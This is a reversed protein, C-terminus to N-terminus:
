PTAAFPAIRLTLVHFADAIPHSAYTYRLDFRGGLAHWRPQDLISGLARLVGGTSLEIGSTECAGAQDGDCQFEMEGQHRGLRLTLTELMTFEVGRRGTHGFEIVGPGSGPEPQDFENAKGSGTLAALPDVFPAAYNGNIQRRLLGRDAQAVGTLEVIRLPGGGFNLDYGVQVSWGLRVRRSLPGEISLGADTTNRGGLGSLAYGLAIDLALGAEADHTRLGALQAIPARVLIGLDFATAAATANRFEELGDSETSGGEVDVGAGLRRLTIGLHTEVPGAYGVGVGVSWARQGATMSGILENTESRIERPMADAQRTYSVGAGLYVPWGTQAPALGGSLAITQLNLAFWRTPQYGSLTLHSTGAAASLHAPNYLFAQPESTPVAVGAEGLALTGPAAGLELLNFAGQATAPLACLLAGFLTALRLMPLSYAHFAFTLRAGFM